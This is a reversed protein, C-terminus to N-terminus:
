IDYKIISDVQIEPAFGERGKLDELEILFNVYIKRVNFKKILRVAAQMTGGTALLDDHLLVVDDDDIADQHIQIKDM